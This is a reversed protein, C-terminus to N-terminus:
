ASPKLMAGLYLGVFSLALALLVNVSVIGVGAMTEYAFWDTNTWSSTDYMNTLNEDIMANSHGGGSGMLVFLMIVFAFLIVMKGISVMKPEERIRGAFFYGVILGSVLVSVVFAVNLGWGSIMPVLAISLVSYILVYIVTLSAVAVVVDGFKLCDGGNLALFV